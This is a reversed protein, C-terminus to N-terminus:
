FRFVKKVKQGSQQWAAQLQYVRGSVPATCMQPECTVSSLLAGDAYLQPATVPQNWRVVVSNGNRYASAQALPMVPDPPPPPALPSAAIPSTNSFPSSQPVPPPLPPLGPQSAQLFFFLAYFILYAAAAIPYKRGFFIVWRASNALTEGLGGAFTKARDIDM